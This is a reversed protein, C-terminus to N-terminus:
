KGRIKLDSRIAAYHEAVQTTWDEVSLDKTFASFAEVAKPQNNSLHTGYLLEAYKM